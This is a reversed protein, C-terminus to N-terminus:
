RTRPRTGPAPHGASADDIVLVWDTREGPTPPEFTREGHAPFTGIARAKGDRPDFWWAKARDGKICDLKVTFPRGVPVYV